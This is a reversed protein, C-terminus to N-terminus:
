GEDGGAGRKKKEGEKCFSSTLFSFLTCAARESSSTSGFLHSACVSAEGEREEEKVGRVGWVGQM